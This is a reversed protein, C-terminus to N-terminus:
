LLRLGCTQKEQGMNGTDEGIVVRGDDMVVINDPGSITTEAQEAGFNEETCVTQVQEMGRGVVGDESEKTPTFQCDQCVKSASNPQADMPCGGCSNANPGGVVVPKMSRIDYNHHSKGGELLPL